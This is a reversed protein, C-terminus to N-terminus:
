LVPWRIQLEEMFVMLEVLNNFHFSGDIGKMESRKNLSVFDKEIIIEM